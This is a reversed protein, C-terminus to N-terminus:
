QMTNELSNAACGTQVVSLIDDPVFALADAGASTLEQQGRFGWVAGCCEVGANHATLVDVNSDGVYLTEQPSCGLAAMM